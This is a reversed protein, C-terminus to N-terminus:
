LFEGSQFVYKALSQMLRAPWLPPSIEHSEKKLRFTLEFGYGSKDHVLPYNKIVHVRGDGHLDTLGYSHLYLNLKLIINSEVCTNRLSKFIKFHFYLLLLYYRIFHWHPPVNKDPNGPHSYASIYDLPDPGGQRCFIDAM